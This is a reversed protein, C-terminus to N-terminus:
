KDLIQTNMANVNHYSRDHMMTESRRNQINM